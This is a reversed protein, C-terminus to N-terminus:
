TKEVTYLMFATKTTSFHWPPISLYINSKPDNPISPIMFWDSYAPINFVSNPRHIQLQVMKPKLNKQGNLFSMVHFKFITNFTFICNPTACKVYANKIIRWSLFLIRQKWYLMFYYYKRCYYNTRLSMISINMYLLESNHAHPSM